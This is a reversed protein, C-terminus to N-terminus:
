VGPAESISETVAPSHKWQASLRYWDVNRTIVMLGALVSFVVLAGTLLAFDESALLSYLLGYLVILTLSFLWGIRPNGLVHRLYYGLLAVCSGSAILYAVKFNIHEAFSLLLLFFM